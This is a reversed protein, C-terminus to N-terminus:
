LGVKELKAIGLVLSEGIYVKLLVTCHLLLFCVSNLNQGPAVQLHEPHTAPLPCQNSMMFAGLLCLTPQIKGSGRKKGLKWKNCPEAVKVGVRKSVPVRTVM